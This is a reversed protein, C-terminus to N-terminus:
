NTSSGELDRLGAEDFRYVRSCFECTVTVAGEEDRMEELEAAGFGALVRRVRDEDCSCAFSLDLPDFVRVGDEHFLRVLLDDLSLSPDLLEEDSLTQLLLMARRWDDEADSGRPQFATGGEDPMAQVVVAGAHWRAAEEDFRVAARIGTPVQESRQFYGLMADQLTRDGLEVVGQYTKGGTRSQDVTLALVGRGVLAALGHLSDAPPDERDFSAYGRMAGDNGVDAVMLGVPGDGRVQLSFTGDYKLAGAFGGALVLLEGLLLSVGQPYAHATLVRDITHGLRVARGRLASREIQFPRSVDLVPSYASM